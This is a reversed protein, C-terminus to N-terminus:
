PKIYRIKSDPRVCAELFLTGYEAEPHLIRTHLNYEKNCVPCIALHSGRFWTGAETIAELEEWTLRRSPIRSM